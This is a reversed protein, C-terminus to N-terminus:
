CSSCQAIRGELNFWSVLCCRCPIGVARADELSRTEDDPLHSRQLGNEFFLIPDPRLKQGASRRQLKSINALDMAGIIVDVLRRPEPGRSRDPELLQGFRDHILVTSIRVVRCERSFCSAREAHREVDAFHPRWFTWIATKDFDAVEAPSGM